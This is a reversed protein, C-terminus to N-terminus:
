SSAGELDEFAANPTLFDRPNALGNSGIPGLDPLRLHRRLERVRLRACQWRATRGPLPHRASDGRDGAAGRRARGTRNRHAPAGAAARDAARWRRRLLLARAHRSQRTCMSASAAQAQPSGNGAMTFLGDIFDTPREPLPLPNWRLQDPTVPGAASITTSADTARVPSRGTCRLPDSATCGVAGTQMAQARHVGHREDARCVPGHPVRQPSNRGEPLAGAIAESAFENGFGTQYGTSANSPAKTKM